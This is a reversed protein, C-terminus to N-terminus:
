FPSKLSVHYVRSCKFAGNPSSVNLLVAATNYLESAPSTRRSDSSLPQTVNYLILIWGLKLPNVNFKNSM